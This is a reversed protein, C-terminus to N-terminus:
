VFNYSAQIHQEANEGESDGPHTPEIGDIMGKAGQGGTTKGGMRSGDTEPVARGHFAHQHDQHQEAGHVKEGGIGEPAAVPSGHQAVAFDPNQRHQEKRNRHQQKEAHGPLYRRVKGFLEYYSRIAYM